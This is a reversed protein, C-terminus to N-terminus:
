KLWIVLAVGQKGYQEVVRMAIPKLRAELGRAGDPHDEKSAQVKVKPISGEWGEVALVNAQFPAFAKNLAMVVSAPETLAANDDADHLMSAPSTPDISQAMKEIIAQQKKVVSLLKLTAERDDMAAKGTPTSRWDMPPQVQGVLLTNGIARFFNNEIAHKQPQTLPKTFAPAVVYKKAADNYTIDLHFPVPVAANGVAANFVRNITQNVENSVPSQATKLM